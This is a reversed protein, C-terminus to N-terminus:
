HLPTNGLRYLALSDSRWAFECELLPCGQAVSYGFVYVYTAQM